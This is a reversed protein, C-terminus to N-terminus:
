GEFELGFHTMFAIYTDKPMCYKRNANRVKKIPQLVPSINTLIRSLEDLVNDSYIVTEYENEDNASVECNDFVMELTAAIEDELQYRFRTTVNKILAKSESETIQFMFSVQGETPIVGKFYYKILYFLRYQKIEDARTPLGKSLLMEKYEVLAATLIDKLFGNTKLKEM